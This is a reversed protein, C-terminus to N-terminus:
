GQCKHWAPLARRPSPQLPLPDQTAHFLIGVDGSEAQGQFCLLSTLGGGRDCLHPTPSVATFGPVDRCSPVAGADPHHECRAGCCRPKAPGLVLPAPHVWKNIAAPQRPSLTGTRPTIGM